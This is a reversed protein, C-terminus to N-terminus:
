LKIEPELDLLDRSPIYPPNSVILDLGEEVADFLNEETLKHCVVHIRNEFKHKRANEATLNCAM